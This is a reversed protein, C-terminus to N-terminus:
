AYWQAQSTFMEYYNKRRALLEEHNGVEVLEGDKMVLIRDALRAAAMRHSIYITTKDQTLEKFQNFINLETLPDLSATPEDLLIINAKSFLARSLALKQWQGGSLDEGDGLLKGLRTDFQNPFQQVTDLLGSQKTVKRMLVTDEMNEVDGLTINHKISFPLQMFDQFIGTMSKKLTIPDFYNINIGDVLIEGHSVPYLGLLCKVLTTKGSGNDGVIAIKEGPAISFSINNIVTKKSEPYHYSVNHITIGKKLKEPFSHIRENNEFAFEEDRFDLFEFLDEIYLNEEYIKALYSAMMNLSAQAGKIAQGISVFEGVGLNKKKLLWIVIAASLSYLLATFLDLVMQVKKEKKLLALVENSNSLFLKGWRELFFPGLHFLRVEKASQRNQLLFNFYNSERAKQTQHKLLFFKENGFRSQLLLIPVASIASLIALGWHFSLLFSLYSLLSISFQGLDLINKVPSMLKNGYNGSIREQHNYFEPIEYYSLPVSAAKESVLKGVSYDLKVEIQEDFIDSIHKLTSSLGVLFLELTLFLFARQYNPEDASIILVVANVLEKTVWLTALPFLGTVVRIFISALFWLPSINWVFQFSKRLYHINM